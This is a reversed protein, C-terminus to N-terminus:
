GADPQRAITFHVTTGVGPRSELWIRGGHREAIKKCISLGIGTGPYEEHSHLRKFVQFVREAYEPEIGIGNDQISFRWVQEGPGPGRRPGPQPEVEASVRIAPPEDRRFKIANAILNQFLRSIQAPEAQIVPLPSLEIRADAERVSKTLASLVEKVLAHTDVRELARPGTSTRAYLLLDDILAKMREAGVLSRDVYGRATGDLTERYRRNLLEIFGSVSRLPEKLDHSVVYAFEELDANSRALEQTRRRLNALMTNFSQALTGLEDRLDSQIAQDMDGAAARTTLATLELIPRSISTSVFFAILMVAALTSGTLLIMLRQMHSVPQYATETALEGVICLRYEPMYLFAALVERGHYSVLEGAGGHDELCRRVPESYNVREMAYGTHGAPDTAFYNQNNVLYMDGEPELGAYSRMIEHLRNVRLRFALVGVPQRGQRIPLAITSTTRGITISHYMNQIYLDRMGEKFYPRNTKYTGEQDPNTSYIIQGAVDMLFVEDYFGDPSIFPRMHRDVVRYAELERRSEVAAGLLVLAQGEFDPDRPILLVQARREQYWQEISDRKLSVAGSLHGLIEQRIEEKATRFAVYSLFLIPVVSVALLCFTLKAKISRFRLLSRWGEGRRRRGPTERDLIPTSM